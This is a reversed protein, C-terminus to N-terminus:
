QYYINYNYALEYERGALSKTHFDGFLVNVKGLHSRGQHSTVPPGDAYIASQSALQARIHYEWGTWLGRKVCNCELPSELRQGCFNKTFSYSSGHFMFEFGVNDSFPDNPCHFLPSQMMLNWAGPGWVPRDVYPNLIYVLWQEYYYFSWDFTSEYYPLFRQDDVYANVGLGLQRLNNLCVITRGNERAANVAGLLISVLVAIIAVVVLLEILTFAKSKKLFM